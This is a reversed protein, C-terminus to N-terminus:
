KQQETVAKKLKSALARVEAEPLTTEPKERMIQRVLRLQTMFRRCVSCVALHVVVSLRQRLSLRGDIYDSAHTENLERCSLM